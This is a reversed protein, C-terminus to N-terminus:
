LGCPSGDVQRVAERAGLGREVGVIHKVKAEGDGEDDGFRKLLGSGGSRHDTYIVIRQRTVIVEVDGARGGLVWPAHIAAHGRIARNAVERGSVGARRHLDIRVIGRGVLVLCRHLRVRSQSNPVSIMEGQVIRCLADEGRAFSDRVQELNWGLIHADDSLKYTPAESTLPRYPRMDHQRRHSRALDAARDLQDQCALLHETGYSEPALGLLAEPQTRGAAPFQGQVIRRLCGLPKPEM